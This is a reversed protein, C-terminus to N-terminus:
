DGNWDSPKEELRWLGCKTCEYLVTITNTLKEVIKLYTFNHGKYKIEHELNISFDSIPQCLKMGFLAAFQLVTHNFGKITPTALKQQIRHMGSPTIEEGWDPINRNIYSDLCVPFYDKALEKNRIM